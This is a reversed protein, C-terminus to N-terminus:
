QKKMCLVFDSLGNSSTVRYTADYPEKPGMLGDCAKPDDTFPIRTLIKYTGTACPSIVLEPDSDTGTNKVCDGVKPDIDKSPSPSPSPSKSTTTTATVGTTPLTSPDDDQGGVWVFFGCVGVCALVVVLAILGIILGAKSKRPAPPAGYGQQTYQPAQQQGYPQGYQPPQPQQPQQGYPQGYPQQGYPDHSSLLFGRPPKVVV